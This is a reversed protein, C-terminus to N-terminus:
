PKTKFPIKHNFPLQLIRLEAAVKEIAKSDIHDYCDDVIADDIVFKAGEFARNEIHIDLIVNYAAIWHMKDVKESRFFQLLRGLVHADNNTRASDLIAKFSIETEPVLSLKNMWIDRCKTEQGVIFYYMWLANM